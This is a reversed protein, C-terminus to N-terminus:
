IGYLSYNEYPLIKRQEPTNFMEQNINKNNGNSSVVGMWPIFALLAILHAYLTALYRAEAFFTQWLTVTRRVAFQPQRKPTM